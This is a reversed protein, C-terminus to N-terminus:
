RENFLCEVVNLVLREDSLGLVSEEPFHVLLKLDTALLRFLQVREDPALQERRLVADLVIRAQEPSLAQRLRAVLRPQGRISNYHSDTLGDLEPFERPEVYIVVTNAALDGLRQSKNSLLCAIGGVAYGAPLMDAARLLNRVVVQSLVLRNGEADVVRLRMLRKGITQGRWNWELLMSYGTATAFYLLAGFASGVDESVLSLITVAKGLLTVIAMVCLTDIFWAAARSIPGALPLRFEVGEATELALMHRSHAGNV